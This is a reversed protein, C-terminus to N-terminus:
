HKLKRAVPPYFHEILSKMDKLTRVAEAPLFLTQMKPHSAVNRLEYAAFWREPHPGPLHGHKILWQTMAKLSSASNSPRITEFKSRIVYEFVRFLQEMGLTYLPYFFIGYVMAGKAVEFLQWIEEPVDEHVTVDTFWAVRRTVEDDTAPQPGTTSLGWESFSLSAASPEVFNTPDLIKIGHRHKEMQKGAGSIDYPESL